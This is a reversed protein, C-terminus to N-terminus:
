IRICNMEKRISLFHGPSSPFFKFTCNTKLNPNFNEQLKASATIKEGGKPKARKGFM